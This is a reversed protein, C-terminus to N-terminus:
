VEDELTILNSAATRISRHTMTQTRLAADALSEGNRRMISGGDSMYYRHNTADLVVTGERLLEKMRPCEGLRHDNGSCGYCHPGMQGVMPRNRIPLNNPFTVPPRQISPSTRSTAVMPPNARAIVQPQIIHPPERYVCKQALGSTDLKMVKFYLHGYKPDSLSMTNLQHIMGEIDEEPGQYKQTPKGKEVHKKIHKTKKKKRLKRKKRSDYDSDSDSDSSDDSDESDSDDDPQYKLPNFVMETFKNRKFHNEAVSCIQEITYPESADYNPIQAQIKPEFILRITEPLGLWFYTQFDREAIEKRALLEGAMSYFDRYYKKWQTLDNISKSNWEKNFSWINNPTYKRSAREADYYDMMHSRLKAWNPKRFAPSARIFDQVKTSCYPLIAEVKESDATVQFRSFLKDMTKLFEEVKDYSGKFTKPADRKGQIPLADVGYHNSHYNMIHNTNPQPNFPITTPTPQTHYVQIPPQTPIAHLPDQFTVTPDKKYNPKTPTFKDSVTRPFNFEAATSPLVQESDLLTTDSTYVLQETSSPHHSELSLNISSPSSQSSIPQPSPNATNDESDTLVTHSERYHTTPLPSM